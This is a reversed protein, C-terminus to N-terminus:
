IWKSKTSERAFKNELSAKGTPDAVFGKPQPVNIGSISIRPAASPNFSDIKIVNERDTAENFNKLNIDNPFGSIYNTKFTLKDPPLGWDNDGWTNHYIQFGSKFKTGSTVTNLYDGSSYINGGFNNDAYALFVLNSPRPMPPMVIDPSVPAFTNIRVDPQAPEDPSAPISVSQPVTIPISEVSISIPEKEVIRPKISPTLAIGIPYEVPVKIQLYEDDTEGEYSYIYNGPNSKKEQEILKEVEHFNSSIPSTNRVFLNKSREFRYSYPYRDHIKDRNWWYNIGVQWSREWPKIVQKGQELLQLIELNLHNASSENKRILDEVTKQEGQIEAGLEQRTPVNEIIEEIIVIEEAYTLNGTILFAVLM